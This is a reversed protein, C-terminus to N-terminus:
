SSEGEVRELNGRVIEANPSGLREFISLAERFLRAAEVKDGENAAMTGLNHLAVAVVSQNGVRKNIELSESYLRRAKEVEGMNQALRGLENLSIATGSQDGLKRKIELSEDYLRRAEEVEGADQALWGLQHLTQAVGSQDDLRRKIELSEDYLRRAEEVKGTAQTLAALNHLTHAVGTQDGLKRNIGVSEDYLRRAETFQGRLQYVAALGHSLAALMHDDSLSRAAQLALEGTRIAENWYGRVHLFISSAARIWVVTRWDQAEFATDLAGLLNGKEPEMADFDEATRESHAKAYTLFHAVFRQYFDATRQYKALRSKALQRTLGRLLLRESGETTEILWLSSLHAVAKDLRHLDEGFGATAALAERSADPSFLSLALLAARGDDGLQPLDFSRQFVREAADGEGGKIEDLVDQPRRAQIIQGAVWQMVLPNAECERILEDHGIGAFASPKPSQEILRRLFERAEDLEMAALRVNTADDRAVLVRTTILAPCEGCSALFAACATQEAPKITEFNDLVVLAPSASVLARVQEEKAAPALTRLEPHGLQTAIDDLLTSLSFDARGLASVWALRENFAPRLARAVEAALTSKGSGGPGWLAILRGSGPSLEERLRELIDRGHEDRRAVFGVAPPRPINTSPSSKPPRAAAAPPTQRKALLQEAARRIGQAVDNFAADRDRRGKIPRANKPLAQLKAFPTRTWECKRLIVPIVRAEGADHREMARKVETDYCYDSALFDPSVLLLIIDASDLHEDIQQDWEQGPVIARDHWESITGERHLMVLHKELEDRLKEDEHAYSYFLRLTAAPPQPTSV